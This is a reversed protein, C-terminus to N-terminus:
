IHQSQKVNPTTYNSAVDVGEEEMAEFYKSMAKTDTSIWITDDACTVEDCEAGQVRKNQLYNDTQERVDHFM